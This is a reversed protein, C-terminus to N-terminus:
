LMDKIVDNLKAPQKKSLTVKEGDLAKLSFRAALFRDSLPCVFYSVWLYESGVVSFIETM